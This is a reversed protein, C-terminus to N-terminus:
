ALARAIQDATIAGERLIRWADGQVQIVTSVEGAREGGDLVAKLAESEGFVELVQEVTHCPSSAHQNASSVVLPGAETLVERLLADDPLRFGVTDSEGGVRRALEPVADVVITLAGPWFADSLARAIPPWTVGLREISSLADVLVPLAVASPRHKMLFIEAVADAHELSAGLGYVTDTPVAVVEGAILLRVAEDRGVVASM